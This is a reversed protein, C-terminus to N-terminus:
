FFALDKAESLIVIIGLYFNRCVFRHRPHMVPLVPLPTGSRGSGSGTGAASCIGAIGLALLL